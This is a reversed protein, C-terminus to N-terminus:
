LQRLRGLFESYKGRHERGFLKFTFFNWGLWSGFLLLAFFSPDFVPLLFFWKWGLRSAPIQHSDQKADKFYCTGLASVNSAKTRSHRPLAYDTYAWGKEQAYAKCDPELQTKVLAFSVAFAIAYCIAGTLALLRILPWFRILATRFENLNKPPM